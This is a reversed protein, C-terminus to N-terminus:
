KRYDQLWRALHVEVLNVLHRLFQVNQNQHFHQVDASSFILMADAQHQKNNVGFLCCAVSGIPFEQPLFLLSKEKNTLEGLYFQRLGFRELRIIEFANRDLWCEEAIHENQQYKDKFLLIKAQQLQYSKAWENIRAVAQAFSNAHFLKQQLPMLALFIDQEQIALQSLQDLQNELQNIKNRLRQQQIEVLSIMGKEKYALNLKELLDLHQTFFDPNNQLYAVVDNENCPCM